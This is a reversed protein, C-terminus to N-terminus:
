HLLCSYPWLQYNFLLPLGVRKGKIARDDLGRKTRQVITEREMEAFGSLITLMLKSNPNDDLTNINEKKFYIGIGEKKFFEIESLATRTNRSFRSIEWCLVVDVKEDIVYSKMKEYELREKSTDYGSVTEGFAEVVKYKQYKAYSRLDREQTKWNQM